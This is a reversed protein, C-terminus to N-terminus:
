TSQNKNDPKVAQNKDFGKRLTELTTELTESPFKDSVEEDWGFQFGQKIKKSVNPKEGIKLEIGVQEHTLGKDKLHVIEFFLEKRLQDAEKTKSLSSVPVHEGTHSFTLRTEDFLLVYTNQKMAKPLYNGKVITLHRQMPNSRDESLMLVVRMKAEFGQGSLLDNKSPAGYETRKGTHHLFMVLCGYQDSLKKFKNLLSRIETTNRLDGKFVDLFCDVIVIDVAAAKILNGLTDLIHEDDFVFRLRDSQEQSIDPRQMQLCKKISKVDDESCVIIARSYKPILPFNLFHRDGCAIQIALQRLLCSKGLDSSGAVAVLGRDLFLPNVLYRVDEEYRLIETATFVKKEKENENQNPLNQIEQGLEELINSQIKQAQSSTDLHKNNVEHQQFTLSRMQNLEM